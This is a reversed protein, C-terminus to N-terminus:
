NLLFNIKEEDDIDMKKYDDNVQSSIDIEYEQRNNKIIITNGAMDNFWSICDHVFIAKELEHKKMRYIGKINYGKAKLLLEKRNM